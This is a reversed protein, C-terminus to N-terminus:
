ESAINVILSVRGRYQSLSVPEGELTVEYDYASGSTTSEAYKSMAPSTDHLVAAGAAALMVAAHRRSTYGADDISANSRSSCTTRVAVRRARRMGMMRERRAGGRSSPLTKWTSSAVMHCM